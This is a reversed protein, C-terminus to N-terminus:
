RSGGDTPMLNGLDVYEPAGPPVAFEYSMGNLTGPGAAIRLRYSGPALSYVEFYGEGDTFFEGSKTPDDGREWAGLAFGVPREARDLLVGGVYVNREIGIRVLTGSRYSPLVYYVREREEAGLVIDLPEAEIQFPSYSRVGGFVLPREGLPIARYGTPRVLGVPVASDPDGSVLVFSDTVPTSVAFAGDAFLLATAITLSTANRYEADELVGSLGHSLSGRVYPDRYGVQAGVTFLDSRDVPVQASATWSVDRPQDGAYRSWFVSAKGATLDQQLFLNQRIDPFSASYSVSALFTLEERYALGVNASLSAGGRVSRRLGTMFRVDHTTARDGGTSSMAYSLRPTMSFGDAFALGVYGSAYLRLTEASPAAPRAAYGVGATAGISRYRESRSDVLRYGVPVDIALRGDPGIGVDGAVRFAGATTAIVASVGADFETRLFASGFRAGITLSQAVGYSVSATALPDLLDRNAVGVALGADIRGPRTLEADHPILLDVTAPGDPGPWTVTIENIGQVLPLASLLYNGPDLTRRVVQSGNRTVLVTGSEPVIIPLTVGGGGVIAHGLSEDTTFSVGTIRTVRELRTTRYRLDGAQLRLYLEPLDWTLRAHDLFGIPSSSRVGGKAEIAARYLNLAVDPTVRYDFRGQEYTYRAWGELNAIASFDAQPVQVGRPIPAARGSLPLEVPRLARAPVTARVLIEDPDFAVALGIEDFADLGTWDTSALLPESATALALEPLLAVLEIPVISVRETFDADVVIQVPIEGSRRGNVVLPVPITTQEASEAQAFGLGAVLACLAVLLPATPRSTRM